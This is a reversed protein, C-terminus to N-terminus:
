VRSTKAHRLRRDPPAQWPLRANAGCAENLQLLRAALLARGEDASLPTVQHQPAALWQQWTELVRAHAGRETHMETAHVLLRRELDRAADLLAKRPIEPPPSVLDLRLEGNASVEDLLWQAAVALGHSQWAEHGLAVGLLAPWLKRHVYTVKGDLLKTRLADPHDELANLVEYTGRAAPNGWWSGHIPEGAVITTVCPLRADSEMLLGVTRLRHVAIKEWESVSM